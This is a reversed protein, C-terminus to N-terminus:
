VYKRNIIVSGIKLELSNYKCATSFSQSENKVVTVIVYVSGPKVYVDFYHSPITHHVTPNKVCHFCRPVNWESFGSVAHCRTSPVGGM